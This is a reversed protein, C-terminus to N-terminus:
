NLKTCFQIILMGELIQQHSLFQNEFYRMPTLDFITDNIVLGQPPLLATTTKFVIVKERFSDM